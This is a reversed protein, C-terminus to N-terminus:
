TCKDLSFANDPLVIISPAGILSHHPLCDVHGEGIEILYKYFLQLAELKKASLDYEICNLYAYCQETEMPIRPAVRECINMLRRQGDAVCRILEQHVKMVEDMNAKCFDERVAWVAFVFPLGTYKHWEESLDLIFPYKGKQQLRLAQDGIAIVAPAEAEITSLPEKVYRTQVGLFKELIIKVLSNSTQSQSSLHVSKGALEGPAVKSFLFVSGVPGTASISLNALIKYL